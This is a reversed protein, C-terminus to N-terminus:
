PQTPDLSLNWSGIANRQAGSAKTLLPEAGGLLTIAPVTDAASRTSAVIVAEGPKLDALGLVPLREIITRVDSPAATLRRAAEPTIRRLATGPEILLSVTRKRELDKVLVLRKAADIAEILAAFNRFSGSVIQQAEFVEGQLDGLAHIQDGVRIDELTSPVADSFRASDPRYRKQSAGQSLRLTLTRPQPVAPVIVIIQGSALHVAEVRGSIGRRRWEAREAERKRVLDPGSIVVISV